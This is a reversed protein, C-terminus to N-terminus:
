KNVQNPTGENTTDQDYKAVIRKVMEFLQYDQGAPTSIEDDDELDNFAVALKMSVQTWKCNIDGSLMLKTGEVNYFIMGSLQNVDLGDMLFVDNQRRPLFVSQEEETPFLMRVGENNNITQVNVPLEVYYRKRFSDFLIPQTYFKTITDYTWLSWGMEVMVDAKNSNSGNMLADFALGVYTSLIEPHYRSKIEQGASGGECFDKVLSIWKSKSLGM